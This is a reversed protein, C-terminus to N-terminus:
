EENIENASRRKTKIIKGWCLFSLPFIPKKGDEETRKGSLKVGQTALHSEGSVRGM